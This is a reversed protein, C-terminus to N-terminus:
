LGPQSSDLREKKFAERVTVLVIRFSSLFSSRPEKSLSERPSSLFLLPRKVFGAQVLTLPLSVHLHAIPYRPTSSPTSLHESLSLTLPSGSTPQPGPKNSTTVLRKVPSTTPRPNPAQARALRHHKRQGRKPAVSTAHPLLVSQGHRGSDFRPMEDTTFLITSSHGDQYDGAPKWVSRRAAPSSSTAGRGAATLHGTVQTESPALVAEDTTSAHLQARRLQRMCSRYHLARRSANTKLQPSERRQSQWSGAMGMKQNADMAASAAHVARPQSNRAQRGAGGPCLLGIVHDDKVAVRREM